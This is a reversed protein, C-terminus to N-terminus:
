KKKKSSSKSSKSSSSKSSKSSSSKSSTKKETKPEEKKAAPQPEPQPQPKPATAQAIYNGRQTTLTNINGNCRRIEDQLDDIKGQLEKIKADIKDIANGVSSRARDHEPGRIVGLFNSFFNMKLISFPNVILAPLKNVKDSSNKAASVVATDVDGVRTKLRRLDDIDDELAMIQNNCNTITQRNNSIQTDYWGVTGDYYGM